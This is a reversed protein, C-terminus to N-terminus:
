VIELYKLVKKIGLKWNSRKFGFVEELSRCDLRSNLPRKVSSNYNCSPIANVKTKSGVQNLIEKAFNAWSVDPTGSFHYIGSKNKDKQLKIAANLCVYAIDYAYTPGGIQDDVINILTKKKSMFLITKLFNKRMASFIWSTRIIAHNANTSSVAEEGILKSRGYATQPATKDEPRWPLKGSGDFVYDTSIHVLPIDMEKCANAMILPAEGNIKTALVEQSEAKDVDTFAAANIVAKPSYSLIIDRCKKPSSLDVVDRGLLTINKHNKLVSAVQGTKGFVLIM